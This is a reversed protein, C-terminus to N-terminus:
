FIIVVHSVQADIPSEIMQVLSIPEGSHSLFHFCIDILIIPALTSLHLVNCGSPLKLWYLGSVYWPLVQQNVEQYIEWLVSTGRTNQHDHILIQLHDM